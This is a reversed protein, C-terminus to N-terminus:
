HGVIFIKVGFGESNNDEYILSLRPHSMEDNFPGAKPLDKMRRQSIVLYDADIAGAYDVIEDFAIDPVFRHDGNAYFATIASSSMVTPKPVMSHERLWLGARKEEFSVDANQVPTFFRKSYLPVSAVPVSLLLAILLLYKTAATAQATFLKEDIIRATIVIGVSLWAMLIPILPFLYRLEVVTVSYGVLTAILFSLLYLDGLRDRAKWRRYFLAPIFFIFLPYPVLAPIYTRLQKYGLKLAHGDTLFTLDLSNGSTESAAIDPATVANDSTRAIEYGEYHDGMLRDQYTFRGGPIIRLMSGDGEDSSAQEIPANVVIKQSITLEGTKKSIVAVYPLMAVSFGILILGYGALHLGKRRVERFYLSCLTLVLLLLLYGLAEPKLLYAAGFCIGTFFFLPLNLTRFANWALLIGVTFVLTYTSETMVWHSATILWPNIVVLITAIYATLRGYLQSVLLFVPLILLAGSIISVLRGAAELDPVIAATIAILISYLPSWYASIGGVLDGNLITGANTAYYAGDGNIVSDKPVTFFRVVFAIAFAFSLFPLASRFEPVSTGERDKSRMEPEM